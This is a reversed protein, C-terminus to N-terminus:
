MVKGKMFNEVMEEVEIMAYLGDDSLLASLLDSRHRFKKSALLQTKTFKAKEQLPHEAKQDDKTNKLASM